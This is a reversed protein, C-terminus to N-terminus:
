RAPTAPAVRATDRSRSARFPEGPRPSAPRAWDALAQGEAWSGRLPGSLDSLAALSRVFSRRRGGLTPLRADNREAIAPLLGEYPEPQRHDASARRFVFPAYMMLPCWPTRSANRVDMSKRPNVRQKPELFRCFSTSRSFASPWAADCSSCPPSANFPSKSMTSRKVALVPETAVTNARTPSSKWRMVVETLFSSPLQASPVKRPM